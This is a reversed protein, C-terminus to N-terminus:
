RPEIRVPESALVVKGDVIVCAQAVLPLGAPLPDASVEVNAAYLLERQMPVHVKPPLAVSLSVGDVMTGAAQEGIAAVVDGLFPLGDVRMEISERKGDKWAAQLVPASPPLVRPTLGAGSQSSDSEVLREALFRSFVEAGRANLHSGDYYSSWDYIPRNPAPDDLELVRVERAVDAVGDRGYFDCSFCPMVVFVPEIDASRLRAAIARVVGANFGGELNEIRARSVKWSLQQEYHARRAAFEEHERIMHDLKVASVDEWGGSAVDYAHPLREERSRALLDSVIRTGQGLRLANSISHLAVYQLQAAKDLVPRKSVLISEVRPWFVGPAHMELDQDSFWQSGRIDQEFSHLEIVARRLSSPKHEVVWELMHVVDLMRLGSLAFNFSKTSHGLEGMRSDFVEPKLAYHMRSSGFFMTDYQEGHEVMWNTKNRSWSWFPLAEADRLNVDVVVVGILFLGLHALRKLM